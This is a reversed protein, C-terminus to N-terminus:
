NELDFKYFKVTSTKSWFAFSLLMMNSVSRLLSSSADVKLWITKSRMKGYCVKFMKTIALAGFHSFQLSMKPINAFKLWIMLLM